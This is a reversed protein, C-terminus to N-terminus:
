TRARMARRAQVFEFAQRAADQQMRHQAERERESQYFALDVGHRIYRPPLKNLAVCVVDPLLEAALGPYDPQLAIVADIVAAEHVNHISSFDLATM